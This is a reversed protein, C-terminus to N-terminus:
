ELDFGAGAAAASMGCDIEYALSLEAVARPNSLPRGTREELRRLRYRVTNPHVYLRKAAESASGDCDLWAGFTDLLLARDEPPLGDLGGLVSRAVRPMIDPASAAAASLPDRGFVVVRRRDLAGRMAIRALRLAQSTLRLDDYPPSVGVRGGDGPALAAVLRELQEHPRPLSAVGVEVDHTLRWASDIGLGGLGHEIHPLAHRGVDSVRAAIV